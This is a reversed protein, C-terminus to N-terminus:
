GAKRRRRKRQRVGPQKHMVAEAMVREIGPDVLEPSRSDPCRTVAGAAVAAEILAIEDARTM